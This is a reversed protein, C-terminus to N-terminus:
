TETFTPVLIGPLQDYSRPKRALEGSVDSRDNSVIGLSGNTSMNEEVDRVNYLQVKDRERERERWELGLMM